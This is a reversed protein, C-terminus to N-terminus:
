TRSPGNTPAAPMPEALYVRAFAFFGQKVAGNADLVSSSRRRLPATLEAIPKPTRSGDRCRTPPRSGAHRRKPLRPRSGPPWAVHTGTIGVLYRCGRGVLGDRLETCDGYRADALVLRPALGWALGEDLLDLAIERTRKFVVEGPVGVAAGGEEPLGHRGRRVGRTSHHRRVEVVESGSQTVCQQLRQRMAEVEADTDVLRAAMPVVSKREGDLLLGTLYLGMARRREPRGMGDTVDGLLEGLEKDLRKLQAPTM